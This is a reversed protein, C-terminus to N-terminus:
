DSGPEVQYGEENLLRVIGPIHPIGVFAATKGKELYPQMREFLIHDRRDIVYPSRTPFGYRNSYIQKLNGELYWRTFDRTYNDWQEIRSLFDVINDISLSELVEIQEPMTELFAIPKNLEQALTYAEMDVSFKWGKRRLFSTYITFFAMWPKMKRLMDFIATDPSTQVFNMFSAHRTGSPLFVNLIEKLASDGLAGFLDMDSTEVVGSDAAQEMHMQDLPGEFLAYDADALIEKLSSRFSYPFFHATGVLCSTHKTNSVSWATKLKREKLRRFFM